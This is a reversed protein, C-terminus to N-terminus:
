MDIKLMVRSTKRIKLTYKDRVSYMKKIDYTVSHGINADKGCILELRHYNYMYWSMSHIDNVDLIYILCIGEYSSKSVLVSYLTSSNDNGFCYYLSCSIYTM